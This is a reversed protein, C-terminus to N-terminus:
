PEVTWNYRAHQYEDSSEALVYAVANRTRELLEMAKRERPKLPRLEEITEVEIQYLLCRLANYLSGLDLVEGRKHAQEVEALEALKDRNQRYQIAVSDMNLEHWENVLDSASSFPTKGLSNELELVLPWLARRDRETGPNLMARLTSRIAAFHTPPCVYSSM